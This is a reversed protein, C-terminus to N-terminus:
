ENADAGLIRKIEEALEAETTCETITYQEPEAKHKFENAGRTYGKLDSYHIFYKAGVPMDFLMLFESGEFYDLIEDPDPAVEIDFSGDENDNYVLETIFEEGEFYQTATINARDLLMNCEILHMVVAFSMEIGDQLEVLKMSTIKNM